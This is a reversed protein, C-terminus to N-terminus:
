DAVLEAVSEWAGTSELRERLRGAVAEDRWISRFFDDAGHEAYWKALYSYGYNKHDVVEARPEAQLWTEVVPGRDPYAARISATVLRELTQKPPIGPTPEADDCEWIVPFVRIQGVKFFGSSAEPEGGHEQVIQRVSALASDWSTNEADSDFNLILRDPRYVQHRFYERAARRANSRGQFPQVLVSSGNPTRFLYRGGM